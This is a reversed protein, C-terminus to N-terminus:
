GGGVGLLTLCAELGEIEVDTAAHREWAARDIRLRASVAPEGRRLYREVGDEWYGLKRSVAGSAPNDVFAGSTAFAAGLGVFGLYLVAARMQTGIGQGHFRRGLWSGTSFERLDAFDTAKVGQVGVPRGDVFVVLPLNWSAPTIAGLARWHHQVVSRARLAPEQDTWTVIFPMQDPPHIGEAAVDALTSLEDPTPLRLEVDPTRIRLGLLPFHETLM